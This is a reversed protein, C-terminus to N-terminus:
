PGLSARRPPLAPSPDANPGSSERAPQPDLRSGRPRAMRSLRGQVRSSRDL